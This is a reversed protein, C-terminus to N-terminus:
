PKSRSRKKESKSDATRRRRIAKIGAMSFTSIHEALRDVTSADLGFIARPGRGSPEPGSILCQSVISMECWELDRQSGDPGLLERLARQIHERDHALQRALLEELLGTPDFMEAMRIRHLDGLLEPDFMRNLHARIFAHLRKEPRSDAPLGGDLPYLREVKQMLHKFVTRYLNEKSGFYYNVAAVNTRARRCIEAHTADRYGKEAFVKCAEELIKDKTAEGRRRGNM